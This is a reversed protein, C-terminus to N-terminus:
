MTLKSQQRILTTAINYTTAVSFTSHGSEQIRPISPLLFSLLIGRTEQLGLHESSRRAAASLLSGHAKGFPQAASGRRMSDTNEEGAIIALKDLEFCPFCCKTVLPPLRVQVAFDAIIIGNRHDECWAEFLERSLGSQLMSPTALVVCAGVESEARFGRTHRVHRFDFPNRQRFAARMGENMMEIYSQYVGLSQAAIGSTQHVPVDHLEPHRSWCDELILLLEQARGLAVVPILCHGQQGVIERVQM